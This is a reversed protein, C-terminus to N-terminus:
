DPNDGIACCSPGPVPLAKALDALEARVAALAGRIVPVQRERVALARSRLSRHEGIARDISALEADIASAEAVEQAVAAANWATEADLVRASVWEELDARLCGFTEATWQDLVSRDALLRRSRIMWVALGIGALASAIAGPAAGGPTLELLLRRMTLAIGLGFGAGVLYALRIELTASARPAAAISVSPRRLGGSSDLRREAEQVVDDVVADARDRVLRAVAGRDRCGVASVARRMEGRTSLCRNRVYHLLQGRTHHSQTRVALVRTSRASRAAHVVASRRGRLDALHADSELVSRDLRGISEVLWSETARLQNRRPTAGDTLASRLWEVLDALMPAGLDPAAAAGVWPVGVYRDSHRAVIRRNVELVDRWTRHADIKSVVGIVVDTVAFAADLLECDSPALPATASVVFVVAAPQQGAALRETVVVDGFVTRLSDALATAGSMAPGTVLVAACRDVPPQAALLATVDPDGTARAPMM